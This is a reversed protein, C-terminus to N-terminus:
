CSKDDQRLAPMKHPIRVGFKGTCFRAAARQASSPQSRVQEFRSDMESGEPARDIPANITEILDQPADPLFKGALRKKLERSFEHPMDLNMAAQAQELIEV